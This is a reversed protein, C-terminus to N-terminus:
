MGGVTVQRLDTRGPFPHVSVGEVGEALVGITPAFFPVIIPGEEAFVAAIERYIEARATIDATVAAEAVLEDVRANSWRSENFGGNDPNADSIYAEVLYQQAVPRDGWGTVGLTVDIWENDGYYVNEPRVLVEVNICGTQAWQDQLLVGMDPYNFADVVFFELPEDAGIGDPLGAEALLACAAEPDYEDPIQEFFPGYKPGIPDNNGVIAVDDGFLDLALLERDTALKLAQMVRPDEGLAGEDSRLRIVPHLNTAEVRVELGADELEAIRDAPVKFIFDLQGGRIADIQAQVEDIFIFEMSAIMPEGEVWYNENAAFTASEGESYGTLVFPGTGVFNSLDDTLTNVDEAGDKLILSWRSAVGFLFDANPEEITFVVTSDGDAEVTFSGLLNLAPSELSQLREFSFVVDASTFPTGDSFTVGEALAMTYTLGDERVTWESALQPVLNGDADIDILYDYIQRNFLVEPDNTGLAPDLQVPANVGVRFTADDQAGVGSVGLALLVASLLVLMIKTIKM